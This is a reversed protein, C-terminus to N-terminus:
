GVVEEAPGHGDSLGRGASCALTARLMRVRSMLTGALITLWAPVIVSRPGALQGHRWHNVRLSLM